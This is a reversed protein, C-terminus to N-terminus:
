PPIRFGALASALLAACRVVADPAGAFAFGQVAAVSTVSSRDCSWDSGALAHFRNVTGAFALPDADIILSAEVIVAGDGRWRQALGGIKRGGAAIDYGGACPARAVAGIRARVGLRELAAICPEALARYMADFSAGGAHERTTIVSVQLTGPSVAFAGGGSARVVVPWGEGAMVECADAYSPLRTQSRTVVLAPLARWVLLFPPRAGAVVAEAMAAIRALREEAPAPELLYLTELPPDASEATAAALLVSM